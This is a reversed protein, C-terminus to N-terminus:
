NNGSHTKIGCYQICIWYTDWIVQYGYIGYNGDYRDNNENYAFKRM